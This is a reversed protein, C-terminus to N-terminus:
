SSQHVPALMATVQFCSHGVSIQRLPTVKAFQEPVHLENDEADRMGSDHRARCLDSRNNLVHSCSCWTNDRWLAKDVPLM